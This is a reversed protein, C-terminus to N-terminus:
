SGNRGYIYRGHPELSGSYVEPPRQPVAHPEAHAVVRVVYVGGETALQM